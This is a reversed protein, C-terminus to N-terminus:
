RWATSHGCSSRRRERLSTRRREACGRGIRQGPGGGGAVRQRPLPAATRWVGPRPIRLWRPRRGSEEGASAEVM